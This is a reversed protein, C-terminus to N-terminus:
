WISVCLININGWFWKIVKILARRAKLFTKRSEEFSTKWFKMENTVPLAVLM